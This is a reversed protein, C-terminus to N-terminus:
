SWSFSRKRTKRPVAPRTQDRENRLRSGVESSFWPRCSPPHGAFTEECTKTEFLCIRLGCIESPPQKRELRSRITSEPRVAASCMCAGFLSRDVERRGRGFDAPGESRFGYSHVVVPAGALTSIWSYISFHGVIGPDNVCVLCVYLCISPSM